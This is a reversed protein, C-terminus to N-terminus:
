LDPTITFIRCNEDEGREIKVDIRDDPLADIGEINESWECVVVGNKDDCYEFFATSYLDDFSSIRYMDFHYVNLRGGIYENVIAFTPSQVDGEYGLSKALLRTFTTKGMGMGGSFAICEGGHLSNAIREALKATDELGNCIVKM